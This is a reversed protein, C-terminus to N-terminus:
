LQARYRNFSSWLIKVLEVSQSRDISKKLEMRLTPNFQCQQFRKLLNRRVKFIPSRWPIDVQFDIRSSRLSEVHRRPHWYSSLQQFHNGFILILNRLYQFIQPQVYDIQNFLCSNRSHNSDLIRGQNHNRFGTSHSRNIFNCLPLSSYLHVLHKYNYLYTTLRHLSPCRKNCFLQHCKNCKNLIQSVKLTFKHPDTCILLLWHCSVKRLLSGSNHRRWYRLM